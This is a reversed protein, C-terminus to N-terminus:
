INSGCFATVKGSNEEAPIQSLAESNLYALHLNTMITIGAFEGLVSAVQATGIYTVQLLFFFFFFFIQAKCINM